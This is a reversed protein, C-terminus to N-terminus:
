VYDWYEKPFRVLTKDKVSDPLALVFLKRARTAAVYFTRIEESNIEKQNIMNSTLKGRSNIILMVADFTCGKVAHITANLYEKKYSDAFFAELPQNLFDKLNANQVRVKTKVEVEYKCEICNDIVFSKLMDSVQQKWEKLPVISEPLLASFRFILQNWEKVSYKKQIEKNDPLEPLNINKNESYVYYGGACLGILIILLM